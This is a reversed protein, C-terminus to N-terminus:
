SRREDAQPVSVVGIGTLGTLILFQALLAGSNIVAKGHIPENGPPLLVFHYGRHEAYVPHPHLNDGVHLGMWPPFIAMLMMLFGATLIVKRQAVSM